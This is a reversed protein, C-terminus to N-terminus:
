NKVSFLSRAIDSTQKLANQLVQKNRRHFESITKRDPKLGSKEMNMTDIIEDYVRV